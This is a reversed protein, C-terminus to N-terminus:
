KPPKKKKEKISIIFERGSKHTIEIKDPHYNAQYHHDKLFPDRMYRPRPYHTTFDTFVKYLLDETLQTNM